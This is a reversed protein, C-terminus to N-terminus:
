KKMRDSVNRIEGNEDMYKAECLYKMPVFKTLWVNNESKYFKIGDKHMRLTDIHFIIPANGHRLGVGFATHVDESLHVYQRTMPKLGGAEIISRIYKENTGHYLCEPPKVPTYKMNVNISHGQNM